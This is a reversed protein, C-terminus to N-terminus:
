RSHLAEPCDRQTALQVRLEQNKLLLECVIFQLTTNTEQLEQLCEVTLSDETMHVQWNWLEPSPTESRRKCFAIEFRINQETSHCCHFVERVAWTANSPHRCCRVTRWGTM